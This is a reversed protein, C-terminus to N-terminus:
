MRWSLSVGEPDTLDIHIVPSKTQKSIHSYVGISNAMGLKRVEACLGGKGSFIETFILHALRKGHVRDSLKQFFKTSHVDDHM